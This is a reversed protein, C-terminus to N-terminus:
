LNVSRKQLKDEARLYTGLKETTGEIEKGCVNASDGDRVVMEESAEVTGTTMWDKKLM